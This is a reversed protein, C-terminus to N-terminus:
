LIWFEVSSDSWEMVAIILTKGVSQWCRHAMKFGTVTVHWRQVAPQNAEGSVGSFFGQGCREDDLRFVRVSRAQAM